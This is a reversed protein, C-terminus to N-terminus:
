EVIKCKMQIFYLECASQLSSVAAAAWKINRERNKKTYPSFIFIFLRSGHVIGVCLEVSM